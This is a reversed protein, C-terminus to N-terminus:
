AQDDDQSASKMRKIKILLLISPALHFLLDGIDLPRVLDGAMLMKLKQWVHPEPIFPALGLFISMVILTQLPIKDVFKM